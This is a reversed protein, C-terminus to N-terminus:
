QGLGRMVLDAIEREAESELKQITALAYERMQTATFHQVAQGYQWMTRDPAPLPPLLWTDPLGYNCTKENM